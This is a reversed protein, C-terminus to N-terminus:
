TSLGALSLGHKACQGSRQDCVALDNCGLSTRLFNTLLSLLQDCKCNTLLVVVFLNGNLSLNSTLVGIALTYLFYNITLLNGNIVLDLLGDLLILWGSKM